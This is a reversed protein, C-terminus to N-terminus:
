ARKHSGWSSLLAVTGLLIPTDDGLVGGGVPLTRGGAWPLGPQDLASAGRGDQWSLM